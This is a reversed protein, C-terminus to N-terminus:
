ALAPSPALALTAPDVLHFEEEVGVTAGAPTAAELGIRHDASLESSTAV